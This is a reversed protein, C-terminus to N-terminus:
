HLHLNNSSRTNYLLTENNLAFLMNNNIVVLILSYIYQSYLTIIQLDKFLERCSNRPKKNTIITLIKKQLLFIKKAAFSNGWIIGYSIITHVYAFYIMKLTDPHAGFSAQVPASFRAGVPIRDGSKEPRLLDSYRSLIGHLNCLFLIIQDRSERSPEASRGYTDSMMKSQTPGM